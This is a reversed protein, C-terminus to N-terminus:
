AGAPKIAWFEAAQKWTVLELYHTLLVQPSNGLELAVAVADKRLALLQSATTHRLVDQPWAKFGLHDRMTRLWRRRYVSPVPLDAKLKGALKLWDM